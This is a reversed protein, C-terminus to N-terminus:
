SQATKAIHGLEGCNYCVREGGQGNAAAMAAVGAGQPAGFGRRFRRQLRGRRAQGQQRQHRPPDNMHMFADADTLGSVMVDINAHAVTARVHYLEKDVNLLKHTFQRDPIPENIALLKNRVTMCEKIHEHMPGGRQRLGEFQIWLKTAEAAVSPMNKSNLISWVEHLMDHGRVYARDHPPLNLLVTRMATVHKKQESPYLDRELLHALDHPAAWIEVKHQFDTCAEVKFDWKPQVGKDHNGASNDKMRSMATALSTHNITATISQVGSSSGASRSQSRTNRQVADSTSDAVEDHVPTSGGPNESDGGTMRCYRGYGQQLSQEVPVGQHLWMRVDKLIFHMVEFGSPKHMTDAITHAKIRHSRLMCARLALLLSNDLVRRVHQAKCLDSRVCIQDSVM